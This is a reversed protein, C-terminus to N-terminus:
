PRATAAADAAAMRQDMEQRKGPAAIDGNRAAVDYWYRALRLDARVGHGQEYMSAILYQAGVDGGKAAERFWHAAQAADHAAGRGLYFAAALAVQGQVSGAQAARAYWQTSAALDRAGLQGAELAQGLAFMATVFGQAAAQELWRRAQRLDAPVIEGRLHMVALNFMAAPVGQAALPRMRRQAEQLRGSEYAAVAAGLAEQQRPAMADAGMPLLLAAHLCVLRCASPFTMLLMDAGPQPRAMPIALTANVSLRRVRNAM